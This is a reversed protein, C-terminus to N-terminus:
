QEGEVHREDAETSKSFFNDSSSAAHNEFYNIKFNFTKKKM